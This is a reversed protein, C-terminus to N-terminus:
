SLGAAMNGYKQWGSLGDNEAALQALNMSDPLDGKSYLPVIGYMLNNIQWACAIRKAIGEMRRGHGTLWGAIPGPMGLFEIPAYLSTLALFARKTSSRPKAKKPNM